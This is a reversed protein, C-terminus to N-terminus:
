INKIPNKMIFVTKFAGNRFVKFKLLKSGLNEFFSIVNYHFEKPLIKLFPVLFPTLLSFFRIEASHFLSEFIKLEGTKLINKVSWRTRLGSLINVQRKLSFIPNNGLTEVAILCGDPKLVRCIEKMAKSKNLSSLTGFDYVIDFENDNFNLNECDMVFFSMNLGHKEAIQKAIKISNPSIDVGIVEWKDSSYFYTKSGISCGFDLIKGQKKEQLIEFTRKELYTKAGINVKDALSTYEEGSYDYEIAEEYYSDYHHQEEIKYNYKPM